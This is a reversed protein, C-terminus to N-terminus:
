EDSIMIATAAFGANVVTGSLATEKYYPSSTHKRVWGDFPQDSSYVFSADTVIGSANSLGELVVGTATITGTAPTAPTGSVTYTYSNAGTVTIAFVGNYEDQNAGRIAVKKGDPIGHATHTVTATSGSRTITVSEAVPLDGGTDAELIVYANEINSGATDNVTITVTRLNRVTISGGGTATVDTSSLLTSTGTLDVVIDGSGDSEIEFTGTKDFTCDDLTVTFDSAGGSILLAVQGTYSEFTLDTLTQASDIQLGDSTPSMFTSGDVDPGATADVTGCSDWMAGGSVSSGLTVDGRGIWTSGELNISSLNSVDFDLDPSDAGSYDYTGSLTVVDAANNRLRIYSRLAQSTLRFRNDGADNDTPAVIIAGNDNFTTATTGDGIQWPVPVFYSNGTQTIWVGIKDSYSSGNVATYADDWTCSAGTFKPINTANATTEFVHVRQGMFVSTQTGSINERRTAFGYCEVATNDFTGASAENSTDNLDIVVVKKGDDDGLPTDNGGIVFKRYNAPPNGTGSYLYFSCGQNADSRIQIRTTTNFNFSTVLVRTNTSVDYTVAAGFDFVVGEDATSPSANDATFLYAASTYPLNGASKTLNTSGPTGIDGRNNSDADHSSTHLNIAAPISFTGM